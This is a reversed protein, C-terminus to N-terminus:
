PKTSLLIAAILETLLPWPKPLPTVLRLRTFGRYGFAVGAWEGLGWRPPVIGIEVLLCFLWSVVLSVALM